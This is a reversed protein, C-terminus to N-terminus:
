RKAWMQPLCRWLTRLSLNCKSSLVKTDDLNVTSTNPLEMDVDYVTSDKFLIRFQNTIPTTLIVSPISQRFTTKQFMRSIAYTSSLKGIPHILDRKQFFPVKKDLFLHPKSLCSTYVIHTTDSKKQSFVKETLNWALCRSGMFSGSENWARM